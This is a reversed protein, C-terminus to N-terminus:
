GPRLKPLGLFTARVAPMRLSRVKRLIMTLSFGTPCFEQWYLCNSLQSRLDVGIRRPIFDLQDLSWIHAVEM